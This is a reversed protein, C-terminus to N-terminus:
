LDIAGTGRSRDMCIGEHISFVVSGYTIPRSSVVARCAAIWRRRQSPQLEQDSQLNLIDPVKCIPYPVVIESRASPSSPYILICINIHKIAICYHDRQYFIVM